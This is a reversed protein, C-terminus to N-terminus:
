LFDSNIGKSKLFENLSGVLVESTHIPILVSTEKRNQKYFRWARQFSLHNFQSEKRYAFGEVKSDRNILDQMINEDFNMELFYFDLNPSSIHSVEYTDTAYFCSGTKHKITLGINSVNHFLPHVQILYGAIEFRLNPKLLFPKKILGVTDIEQNVLVVVSPREIQIQNITGPTYHDGHEHTILIVKLKPLYKQILNYPVGCDILLEENILVANGESGTRIVEYKVNLKRRFGM